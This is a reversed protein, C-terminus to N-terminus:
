SEGPVTPCVICYEIEWFQSFDRFHWKAMSNPSKM